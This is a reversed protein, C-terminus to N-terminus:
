SSWLDLTPATPDGINWSSVRVRDTLAFSMTASRRNILYVQVHDVLHRETVITSLQTTAVGSGGM